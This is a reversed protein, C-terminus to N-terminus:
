DNIKDKITELDFGYEVEFEDITSTDGDIEGNVYGRVCVIGSNRWSEWEERTFRKGDYDFVETGVDYYTDQKAILKIYNGM